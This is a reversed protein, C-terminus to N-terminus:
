TNETSLLPATGMDDALPSTPVPNPELRSRTKLPGTPLQITM